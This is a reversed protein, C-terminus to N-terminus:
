TAGAALGHKQRFEARRKIAAKREDEKLLYDQWEASDARPLNGYAMKAKKLAEGARQRAIDVDQSLRRLEEAQAKTLM